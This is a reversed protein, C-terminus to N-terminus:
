LYSSTEQSIKTCIRAKFYLQMMVIVKVVVALGCSYTSFDFMEMLVVSHCNKFYHYEENAELGGVPCKVYPYLMRWSDARFCFPFQWLSDSMILSEKYDDANKLFHKDAHDKWFVEVIAECVETVINCVPSIGLGTLEAITHIYDGRGLRYLCTALRKEPSIPDKAVTDKILLHQIKENIYAFTGRTIHFNKRFREDSYTDWVNKWWDCSREFRRCSRNVIVNKTIQTHAVIQM